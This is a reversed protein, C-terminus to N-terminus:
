SILYLVMLLMILLVLILFMLLLIYFVLLHSFSFPCPGLVSYHEIGDVLGGRRTGESM